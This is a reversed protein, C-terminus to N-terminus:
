PNNFSKLKEVVKGIQKETIEPWFPLSIVDEMVQETNKFSGENYNLYDYAPQLHLPIPYHVGTSIGNNSLYERMQNRNKSRIVYLHYVHKAYENVTPTIVESDKLLEDYIKAKEIRKEVWSDLYRLKVRLVAAQIPDLRSNFGEMKHVYKDERGHDSLMKIKKGLDKNKTVVAGADGFAGLNKAPYFSYTAVDGYEGPKKGRYEAGHAQASDEIVKLDYKKAIKTIKDMEAMQGYLHVPIVAKVDEPDNELYQKLKEPDMTYTEEDIDVFDVEAGATTIAETTAIFTNPVTIVKDGQGIDLAKLALILADTGNGCGIGKKCNCYDAFEKEFKNVEEGGIFRTNDVLKNIKNMIEKRVQSYNGSLDMFPIDM